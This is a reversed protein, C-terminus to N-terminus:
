RALAKGRAARRLRAPLRVGMGGSGDRACSGFRTGPMWPVVCSVPSVDPGPDLFWGFPGRRAFPRSALWPAREWLETWPEHGRPCAPQEYGHGVRGTAESGCVPCCLVAGPAERLVAAPLDALLRAM